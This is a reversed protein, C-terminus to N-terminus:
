CLIWGSSVSGSGVSGRVWVCRQGARVTVPGASLPSRVERRVPRHGRAQVSVTMRRQVGPWKAYTVACVSGNRKFVYVSGTSFSLTRAHRGPCPAGAAEARGPLALALLM